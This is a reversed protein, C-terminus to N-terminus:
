REEGSENRLWEALGEPLGVLSVGCGPGSTFFAVVEGDARWVWQMELSLAKGAERCTRVLSELRPLQDATIEGALAYIAHTATTTKHMIKLVPSAGGAEAMM